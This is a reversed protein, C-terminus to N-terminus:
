HALALEPDDASVGGPFARLLKAIAGEQGDLMLGFLHDSLLRAADPWAGAALLHRVAEVTEGHDAFWRAARRHLGPIEDASRRRIELRLFDALLHHYRFWTRQPDLSVVFANAEELELLIQESGSRGALVDALEGNLRDVLSTRLLMSQVESPQRELMEAMLYEGIARDTGSFEAVFREPDSHGSLSIVALRLGAAWGETREHLAASGAASLGIGSGALLERTERETFQLDGARIEAIEDALRLQHLRISPDRRSSLVVSASSPLIALLHELQALADASRLEHLDDIILVVPEVQEAVESLVRDVLQDDDLAATAAPQKEPDVLPAPSRIADLIASWFRQADQQDREVSVFAVRRHNTSRDAWARLLSTKGSGPPASIVTLRKTVARDLLEILDGRDLLGRPESVDSSILQQLHEVRQTTVLSTM